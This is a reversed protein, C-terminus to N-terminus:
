PTQGARQAELRRQDARRQAASMAAQTEYQQKLSAIQRASLTGSAADLVRRNYEEELKMAQEQVQLRAQPDSPNLNRTLEQMTQTMREQEVVLVKALARQQVDSLPQGIEALQRGMQVAQQRGSQTQRYEQWQAYRAPGLLAAVQTELERQLAQSKRSMEDRAAQDMQAAGRMASFEATMKEQNEVLLEFLADADKQSLGLEEALGPYNRQIDVRRLAMRAKRYEPDKMMEDERARFDQATMPMPAPAPQASPAPTSGTKADVPTTTQAVVPQSVNNRQSALTLAQIRSNADTLQKSLDATFQRETRLKSWMTASVVGSILVLGACVPLVSRM